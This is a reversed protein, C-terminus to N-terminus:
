YFDPPFLKFMENLCYISEHQKTEIYNEKSKYLINIM